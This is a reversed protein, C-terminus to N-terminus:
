GGTMKYIAIGATLVTCLVPIALMVKIGGEFRQRWDSLVKIERSIARMDNFARDIDREFQALKEARVADSVMASHMESLFLDMKRFVETVLSELRKFDDEHLCAGNHQPM